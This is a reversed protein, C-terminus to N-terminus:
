QRSKPQRDAQRCLLGNLHLETLRYLLLRWSLPMEVGEPPNSWSKRGRILNYDGKQRRKERARAGNEEMKSLFIPRGRQKAALQNTYKHASSVHAYTHIQKLHLFFCHADSTAWCPAWSGFRKKKIERRCSGTKWDAGRKKIVECRRWLKKNEEGRRNSRDQKCDFSMNNKKRTGRYLWLHLRQCHSRNNSETKM